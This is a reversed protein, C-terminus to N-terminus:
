NNAKRMLSTRVIALKTTSGAVLRIRTEDLLLATLSFVLSTELKPLTQLILSCTPKNQLIIRNLSPYPVLVETVDIIIKKIPQFQTSRREAAQRNRYIKSTPRGTLLKIKPFNKYVIITLKTEQVQNVYLM